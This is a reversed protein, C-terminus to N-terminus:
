TLEFRFSIRFNTLTARKERILANAVGKYRVFSLASSLVSIISFSSWSVVVRVAVHVSVRVLSCVFVCLCSCVCVVVRVCDVVRACLCVFM